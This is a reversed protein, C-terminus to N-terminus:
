VLTVTMTLTGNVDEITVSAVTQGTVVLSMPKSKKEGHMAAQLAAITDTSITTAAM